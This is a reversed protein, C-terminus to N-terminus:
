SKKFLLYYKKAGYYLIMDWYIGEDNFEIYAKPIPTRQNKKGWKTGIFSMTKNRVKQYASEKPRPFKEEYFEELVVDEEYVPIVYSIKGNEKFLVYTKGNKERPTLLYYGPSINKSKFIINVGLRFLPYPSYMYKTYEDPQHPDLGFIYEFDAEDLQSYIEDYNKNKVRPINENAFVSIFNFCFSLLLIFLTIKIKFNAM